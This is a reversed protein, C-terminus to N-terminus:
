ILNCPAGNWQATLHELEIECSNNQIENRNCLEYVTTSCSCQTGPCTAPPRPSRASSFAVPPEGPTIMKVLNHMVDLRVDDGAM